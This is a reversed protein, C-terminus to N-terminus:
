RFDLIALFGEEGDFRRPFLTLFAGAVFSGCQSERQM